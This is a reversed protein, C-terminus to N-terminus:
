GLSSAGSAAPEDESRPPRKAGRRLPHDEDIWIDELAPIAAAIPLALLVGVIGLLEGGILVAVLVAFSSIQLTNKYVRPVIIYNEIQQYILYAVLVIVATTWSVSLALLVAPITAIIVGAIPIADAFAALIALFLAQPVDLSTLLLFTFVGFIFSTLLQGAVYGSIVRSVEPIARDLRERQKWPLYRVLWAYIREGDTLIYITMVFIILTNSIAGVIGAGFSLFRNAIGGWDPSTGGSSTDLQDLAVPNQEIRDQATQIYEPFRDAFDRGDDILPPIILWLMLAFAAAITLLVAAVASPRNLGRRELRRVVPYLAAAAVVAIIGLLLISWLRTLLWILVLTLIVRAITRGPLEM